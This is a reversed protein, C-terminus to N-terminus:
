GAWWGQWYIKLIKTVNDSTDHQPDNNKDTHCFFNVFLLFYEVKIETEM